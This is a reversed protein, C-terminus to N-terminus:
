IEEIDFIYKFELLDNSNNEQGELEEKLSNNKDIIFYIKTAGYEKAKPMFYDKVWLTDAPNDLFGNRTDAVYDCKHLKIADLAHNLFTRYTDLECYSKWVVLVKNKNDLYYVDAYKSEFIVEM